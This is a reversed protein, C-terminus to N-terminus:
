AEVGVAPCRGLERGEPQEELRHTLAVLYKSFEHRELDFTRVLDVMWAPLFRTFKLEVLVGKEVGWTNTPHDLYIWNEEEGRLDMGQAPQYRIGRDFTLRAYEGFVSEYAEREYRLLVVPLCGGRVYRGMFDELNHAALTSPLPGHGNRLLTEVVERKIRVRNKLVVQKVKRKVEFFLAGDAQEGYARLRLKYRDLAGNRHAWYLSLEPTDLYLNTITYRGLPSHASHKDRVMYPAIFRRIPGLLMKPVFYKYEFREFSLASM